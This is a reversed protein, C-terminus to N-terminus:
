QKKELRQINTRMLSQKYELSGFHDDKFNKIATDILETLQGDLFELPVSLNSIRSSQGGIALQLTEPDRVGACIMFAPASPLLATRELSAQDFRSRKIQIATIIGSGDWLRISIQKKEGNYVALEADLAHLLIVLESNPRSRAIEGGLTRQNRLNKSSCSWRASRAFVGPLVDVLRQLVTQAGIRITDRDEVIYNDVLHNIDILQEIASNKESVLYTGGGFLASSPKKAM